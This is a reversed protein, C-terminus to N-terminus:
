TNSLLSSLACSMLSKRLVGRRLSAPKSSAPMRALAEQSIPDRLEDRLRTVRTLERALDAHTMM